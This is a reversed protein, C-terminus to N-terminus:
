RSKANKKEKKDGFLANVSLGIATGVAAGAAITTFRGFAKDFSMKPKKKKIETRYRKVAPVKM